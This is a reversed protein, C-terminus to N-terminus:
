LRLSLQSMTVAMLGATETRLRSQGLSISEYGNEIALRVEEISFDGEPGVLVTISENEKDSNIIDFLDNKEIEQYCHAIFKRGKRPTSIFDKFSIMENVIPKWPKRSQKVASVVIKEIRETRLVKRESFICNLFTLEDFGIETAKETMWEIRDMNKTPAIALHIHGKWTKNQPLTEKIEYLCKKNTALSVEAHYFNGTGDMIFMDDGSKLRLVRLAHTAEEQPLENNNKADPVYFYRVEKM